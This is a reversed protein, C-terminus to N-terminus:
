PKRTPFVRPVRKEPTGTKMPLSKPIIGELTEQLLEATAIEISRRTFGWPMAQGPIVCKKLFSRFSGPCEFLFDFFRILKHNFPYKQQQKGCYREQASDSAVRDV